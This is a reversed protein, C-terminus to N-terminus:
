SGLYSQKPGLCPSAQQEIAMVEDVDSETMRRVLYNSIAM